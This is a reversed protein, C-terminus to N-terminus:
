IFTISATRTLLEPVNYRAWPKAQREAVASSLHVNRRVDAMVMLWKWGTQRPRNTPDFVGQGGERNTFDVAIGVSLGHHSVALSNREFGSRFGSWSTQEDNVRCGMNITVTFMGRATASRQAAWEWFKQLIYGVLFPRQKCLLRLADYM